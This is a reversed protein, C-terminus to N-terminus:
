AGTRSAGEMGGWVGSAQGAAHGVGVAGAIGMHEGLAPAHPKDALAAPAAARPPWAKWVLIPGGVGAEDLGLGQRQGGRRQGTMPAVGHGRGRALQAAQAQLVQQGGHGLDIAVVHAQHHDAGMAAVGGDVAVRGQRVVELAM